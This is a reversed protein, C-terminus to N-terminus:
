SWHNDGKDFEKLLNNEHSSRPGQQEEFISFVQIQLRNYGGIRKEGKDREM